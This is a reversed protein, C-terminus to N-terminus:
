HYNGKLCMLQSSGPGVSGRQTSECQDGLSWFDIFLNLVLQNKKEM